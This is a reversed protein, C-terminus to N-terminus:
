VPRKVDEVKHDGGDETQGVKKDLADKAKGVKSEAVKMAKSGAKELINQSWGLTEKLKLGTGDQVRGVLSEAVRGVGERGDKTAAKAREWTMRTHANAIDHKEKLTPTYREELESLYLSLNHSTKPLFQNLSLILFLPPLFLRTALLRNRSIISGTLTAVGVYLIGPTLPEEPAALSKVRSEVAHEVGIWQSVVGQVRAHADTYVATVKRRVGGIHKELESPTDLL